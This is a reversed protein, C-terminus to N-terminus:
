VIHRVGCGPGQHKGGGGCAPLDDGKADIHLALNGKLVVGLRTAPRPCRTDGGRGSFLVVCPFLRVAGYPLLSILMLGVMFVPCSVASPPLGLGSPLAWGSLGLAVCTALFSVPGLGDICSAM